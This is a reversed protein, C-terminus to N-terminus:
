LIIKEEEKLISPMLYYDINRAATVRGRIVVIDLKEATKTHKFPKDSFNVTKTYNSAYEELAYKVSSRTLKRDDFIRKLYGMMATVSWVNPDDEISSYPAGRRLDLAKIKVYDQPRFTRKLFHGFTENLLALVGISSGKRLANIYNTKEREKKTQAWAEQILKDPNNKKYQLLISYIEVYLQQLDMEKLLMSDCQKVPIQWIKRTGTNGTFLNLKNTTGIILATRPRTLVHKAYPDRYTVSESDVSSKVKQELRPTFLPECENIVVVAKTSLFMHWEKTDQIVTEIPATAIYNGMDKPILWESWSSKYTYEAGLLVLIASIKPADEPWFHIGIMSLLSRRIYGEYIKTHQKEENIIKISKCVEKLRKKGDWPTSLVWRKFANERRMNQCLHDIADRSQRVTVSFKFRDQMFPRFRIAMDSISAVQSYGPPRMARYDQEPCFWKTIIDESGKFCVGGGMPDFVLELGEHEILTELNRISAPDPRLKNKGSTIMDPFSIICHKAIFALTGYSVVYENNKIKGHTSKILLNFKDEVDKRDKYGYTDEKSWNHFLDIVKASDSKRGCLELYIAHNACANGVLVWYEYNTLPQSYPLNSCARQAIKNFTSPIMNLINKLDGLTPVTDLTPTIQKEIKLNEENKRNLFLSPIIEQLQNATIYAIEEVSYEHLNETFILFCKRYRWDGGFSDGKLLSTKRQKLSYENLEQQTEETLRYIIHIGQGSPSYHVHTPYKQIFKLVKEPIELTTNQKKGTTDVDIDLGIYESTDEFVLGMYPSGAIKNKANEKAEEYSLTKKGNLGVAPAKLTSSIDSCYSWVSLSKLREM